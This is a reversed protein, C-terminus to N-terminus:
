SSNPPTSAAIRSSLKVYSLSGDLNLVFDRIMDEEVSRVMAMNDTLCKVICDHTMQKSDVLAKHEEKVYHPFIDYEVLGSGRLTEETWKFDVGDNDWGKWYATKISQGAVIAGASTGIYACGSRLIPESIGWFNTLNLFKQLYFTNGGDVYILSADKLAIKLFFTRNSIFILLQISFNSV